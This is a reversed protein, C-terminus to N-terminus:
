DSVGAVMGDDRESTDFLHLAPPAAPEQRQAAGCKEAIHAHAKPPQSFGDQAPEEAATVHTVTVAWRGAIKRWGHVEIANGAALWEASAPLASLKAVREGQHAGTTTQVALVGPRDRRVAVIDIFGFLDQRVKAYQNWRETVAALYGDRRLLALSRQAPSNTMRGEARSM